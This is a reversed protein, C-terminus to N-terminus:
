YSYEEVHGARISCPKWLWAGTQARYMYGQNEPTHIFTIPDKQGPLQIEVEAGPTAFYGIPAEGEEMSALVLDYSGNLDYLTIIQQGERDESSINDYIDYSGDLSEVWADVDYRTGNQDEVIWTVTITIESSESVNNEESITDGVDITGVENNNEEKIDSIISSVYEKEKSKVQNESYVQYAKYGGIALIFVLVGITTRINIIFQNTRYKVYIVFCVLLIAMEIYDRIFLTWYQLTSIGSVRLYLYQYIVLFLLALFYKYEKKICKSLLWVIAIVLFPQLINKHYFEFTYNLGIDFNQVILIISYISAYVIASKTKKNFGLYVLAAFALLNTVNFFRYLISAYDKGILPFIIFGMIVILLLIIETIIETWVDGFLQLINSGFGSFTIKKGSQEMAKLLASQVVIGAIAIIITLFIATTNDIGRGYVLQNLANSPDSGGLLGMHNIMISGTIATIVIFAYKHYIWVFISMIAAIVVAIIFATTLDSDQLMMGIVLLSILFSMIFAQISMLLRELWISLAAGIIGIVIMMLIATADDMDRVAYSGTLAMIILIVYSLSFGWVFGLIAEFLKKFVIATFCVLIGVIIIVINIAQLDM